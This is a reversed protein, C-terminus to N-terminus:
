AQTGLSESVVTCHTCQVICDITPNRQWFYKKIIKDSYLYWKAMFEQNIIYRDKRIMNEM